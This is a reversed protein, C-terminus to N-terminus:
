GLSDFKINDWVKQYKEEPLTTIDDELKLSHLIFKM